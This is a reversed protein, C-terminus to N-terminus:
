VDQGIWVIGFKDRLLERLADFDTVAEEKRGTVEVRAEKLKNGEADVVIYKYMVDGFTEGRPATSGIVFMKEGNPGTLSAFETNMPPCQVPRCQGDLAKEFRAPDRDVDEFFFFRNFGPEDPAELQPVTDDKLTETSMASMYTMWGPKGTWPRERVLFTPGGVMRARQGDRLPVPDIPTLPGTECIWKLSTHSALATLNDRLTPDTDLFNPFDPRSPPTSPITTLFFLHGEMTTAEPHDENPVALLVKGSRFEVGFGLQRAAWGYITNLEYCFGGRRRVVMKHFLYEVEMRLPRGDRDEESGTEFWRTGRSWHPPHFISLNEWPISRQIRRQLTILTALDPPPLPLTHDFCLTCGLTTADSPTRDEPLPPFHPFRIHSLFAHICPTSSPRGGKPTSTSPM